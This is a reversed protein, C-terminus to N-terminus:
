HAPRCSDNTEHHQIEQYVGHDMLWPQDIKSLRGARTECLETVTFASTLILGFLVSCFMISDIVVYNLTPLFDISRTM